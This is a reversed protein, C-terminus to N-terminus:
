SSSFTRLYGIQKWDSTVGTVFSLPNITSDTRDWFAMCVCFGNLNKVPKEIRPLSKKKSGFINPWRSQHRGRELVKQVFHASRCIIAMVVDILITISGIYVYFIQCYIKSHQPLSSKTPQLASITIFSIDHQRCYDIWQFKVHHTPALVFEIVLCWVVYSPNNLEWICDLVYFRLPELFSFKRFIDTSSGSQGPSVLM